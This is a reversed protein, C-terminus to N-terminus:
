YCNTPDLQSTYCCLYSRVELNKLINMVGAAENILTVSLTLNGFHCPFQPRITSGDDFESNLLSIWRIGATRTDIEGEVRDDFAMIVNKLWVGVVEIIDIERTNWKSKNWLVDGINKQKTWSVILSNKKGHHWCQTLYCTKARFFDM